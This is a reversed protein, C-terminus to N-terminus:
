WIHFDFSTTGSPGNVGHVSLTGATACDYTNPCELLLGTNSDWFISSVWFVTLHLLRLLLIGRGRPGASIVGGDLQFSDLQVSHAKQQDEYVNNSDEELLRGM